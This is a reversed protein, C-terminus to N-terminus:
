HSVSDRVHLRAVCEDPTAWPVLEEVELPAGLEAVAGEILGRHMRCVVEPRERAVELFPCHRLRVRAADGDTGTEPAFGVEAMLRDVRDLAEAPAVRASPAAREVLHRGWARGAAGAAAGTPDTEAVMGVLMEALLRYSRVGGPEADPAAAYRIRPRGPTSRGEAERVALGDGVLGELHFRATNLHMGTREALEAASTPAGTGRLEALVAARRPRM